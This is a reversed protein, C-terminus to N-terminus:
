ATVGENFPEIKRNKKRKNLKVHVPRGTYHREAHARCLGHRKVEIHRNCGEAKCKEIM